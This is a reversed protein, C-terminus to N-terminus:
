TKREQEVYAPLAKLYLPKMLPQAQATKPLVCQFRKTSTNATKAVKIYDSIDLTIQQDEKEVQLQMMRKM